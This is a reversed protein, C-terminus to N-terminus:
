SKSYRGKQYRDVQSPDAGEKIRVQKDGEKIAVQDVVDEEKKSGSQELDPALWGQCVTRWSKKEKPWTHSGEMKVTPPGVASQMWM